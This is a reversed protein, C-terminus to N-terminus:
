ERTCLGFRAPIFEWRYGLVFDLLVKPNTAFFFSLGKPNRVVFTNYKPWHVAMENLGTIPGHKNYYKSSQQLM